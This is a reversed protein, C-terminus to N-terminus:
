DVSKFLRDFRTADGWKWIEWVDAGGKTSYFIFEARGVLNEEPIYGVASLVRSDMSNDRNDGMAFYHNEPVIYVQTDDLSGFPTADLVRYSVGSELVEEYQELTRKHGYRDLYTFNEIKRRKIPKGNIHLLGNKVQIRDGPLGIIRKIYDTENDRPLEFVAVDGREPLGGLIRGSFLPVSWPLSFKSYGYSYKSVFLYDGVMLSPIMSGSPINFPELAVTRLIVAALIAYLVTRITGMFSSKKRPSRNKEQDVEKTDKKFPAKTM